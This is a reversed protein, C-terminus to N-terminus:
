HKVGSVVPKHTKLTDLGFQKLEELALDYLVVKPAPAQPKILRLSM